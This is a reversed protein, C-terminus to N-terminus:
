NYGGPKWEELDMKIKMENYGPVPFSRTAMCQKIAWCPINDVENSFVTLKKLEDPTAKRRWLEVRQEGDDVLLHHYGPVPISYTAMCQKVYLCPINEGSQTQFLSKKRLETLTLKRDGIPVMQEGVILHRYPPVPISNTALCRKINWCPLKDGNMFSFAVVKKLDTAGLKKPPGYYPKEMLEPIVTDADVVEAAAATNLKPPVASTAAICCAILVFKV